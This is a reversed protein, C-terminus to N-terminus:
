WDLLRGENQKEIASNNNQSAGDIAIMEKIKPIFHEKVEAVQLFEDISKFGGNLDRYEVVRKAIAINIGPLVSIESATATNINIKATSQQMIDSLNLFDENYTAEDEAKTVHQPQSLENFSAIEPMKVQPRNAEPIKNYLSSDVVKKKPAAEQVKKAPSLTIIDVPTGRRCFAALSDLTAYKNFIRCIKFWYKDVDVTAKKVTFTRKGITNDGLNDMVILKENPFYQVMCNQNRLANQGLRYEVPTFNISFQYLQKQFVFFLAGLIGGLVIITSLVVNAFPQSVLCLVAYLSIIGAIGIFIYNKNM